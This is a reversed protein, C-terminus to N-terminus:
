AAKKLYSARHRRRALRMTESHTRLRFGRAMLRRQISSRCVERSSYNAERWITDAIERLSEGNRYRIEIVGVDAETILGRGDSFRHAQRWTAVAESRGRLRFGASRFARAIARSCGRADRYAYREWLDGGLATLSAGAQYRAYIMPVDALPIKRNQDKPLVPIMNRNHFLKVLARACSDASAYNHQRWARKAIETVALGSCHLKYAARIQSESLHSRKRPPPRRSPQERACDALETHWLNPDVATVIKDALGFTITEQRRIRQMTNRSVGLRELAGMGVTAIAQDLIPLIREVPIEGVFM